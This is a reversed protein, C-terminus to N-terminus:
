AGGKEPWHRVQTTTNNKTPNPHTDSGWLDGYYPCSTVLCCRGLMIIIYYNNSAHDILKPSCLSTLELVEQIAEIEIADGDMQEDGVVALKVAVRGDGLGGQNSDHIRGAIDDERHLRGILVSGEHTVPFVHVMGTEVDLSELDM